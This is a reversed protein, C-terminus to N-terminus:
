SRMLAAGPMPAAIVSGGPTEDTFIENVRYNIRPWPLLPVAAEVLVEAERWTPEIDDQDDFMTRPDAAGAALYDVWAQNHALYAGQAAILESHWPFFSLGRAAEGAAAVEDRGAAAAAKLQKDDALDADRPDDPVQSLIADQAVKMQNESAEIANLMRVMEVNRATWDAMLALSALAILAVSLWFVLKAWLPSGSASVAPQATEGGGPYQGSQPSPPYAYSDAAPQAPDPGQMVVSDGVAALLALDPHPNRGLEVV